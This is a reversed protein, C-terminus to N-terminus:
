EKARTIVQSALVSNKADQISMHHLQEACREIEISVKCIGCEEEVLKKIEHLAVVADVLKLNRM